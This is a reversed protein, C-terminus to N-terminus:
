KVMIPAVYRLAQLDDGARPALDFAFQRQWGSHDVRIRIENPGKRLHLKTEVRNKGSRNLTDVFVKEGNVYLSLGLTASFTQHTFVGTVDREKESVVHRAAWFSDIVGGFFAQYPDLSGPAIFGTYDYTPTVCSWPGKLAATEAAAAGPAANTQWQAGDVGGKWVTPNDWPASVRWPTAVPVRAVVDQGGAQAHITVPNVLHDPRGQVFFSGSVVAGSANKEVTARAVRWGEPVDCRPTVGAAPMRLADTDHWFWDIRYDCVAQAADKTLPRLRWAINEKSLANQRQLERDYDAGILEACKMEGFARCLERAMALHGLARPHVFDPVPQFDTSARRTAEIADQVVKGFEAVGCNEEQAVRRLRTAMRERVLNKPSAPDATLPTTTCLVVMRAHTRERLARVFTRLQEAWVDLAREDDRVSPMLIDNMGLFVALADVKGSLVQAVDWGPRAHTMVPHQRSHREMDIWSGVRAGNFGLSAMRINKEPCVKAFANTMQHHFGCGLVVAHYTISDGCVVLTDDKELAGFACACCLATMMSCVTKKM